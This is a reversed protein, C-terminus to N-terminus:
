ATRTLRAVVNISESLVVPDVGGEPLAIAIELTQDGGPDYGPYVGPSPHLSLFGGDPFELFVDGYANAGPPSGYKWGRKLLGVIPGAGVTGHEFRTLRGTAREEESLTYVPRALQDFPQLIEYDALVTAWDEVESGLTLPHAIRVAADEPLEFPEDEADALTRDEALRFSQVGEATAAQWVLRSSLHWVLPHEVLYTRFEAATWTRGAVMAAELRKVQDASTAKLDKRLLAFREYSAQAIEPDDKASPKPAAARRKGDEDLVYPKLSEDFRITFRRPGYELVMADEADLGFDPVLRDALQDLSLELREAIVEIQETATKKLAKFKAKQSFRHVARLSAETGIWGLIELGRVAKRSQSQGPWEQVLATLRRVTDDDAFRRLQDMAWADKSPAGEALWLEFLGWSFATLSEPECEAALLDAGPYLREADDLALATMFTRVAAEPLAAEGVLIQPLLTPDAWAGPKPVRAVRPDLPDADLLGAVAAAAEPGYAAAREEVDSRNKSALHRLADAAAHRRKADKGVADPILLSAADAAHRDLWARGLARDGKSRSLWDAAMRAADLNVFPMMVPRFSPKKRIVELVGPAVEPGFRALLSRATGVRGTPITGIWKAVVPRAVDEDARVLYEPFLYHDPDPGDPMLRDWVGPRTWYHDGDTPVVWEEQEGPAWRLEDTKPPELGVVPKQKAAKAFPLWPPTTFVAPVEAAEPHRRAAALLADLHEREAADLADVRDLLGNARVFGALRAQEAAAASAAAAAVARLGRTPFRQAAERAAAFASPVTLRAVLYSLAEDSPLRGIADFVARRLDANPDHELTNVLVPLADVGLADVVRAVDKLEGRGGPLRIAGSKALLAPNSVVAWINEGDTTNWQTAAALECADAAWEEQEPMLIAGIFRKAETTRRSAIADRAVVYEAEPLGALLSRVRAARGIFDNFRLASSVTIDSIRSFPDRGSWGENWYVALGLMEMVAEAAFAPGHATVWADLGIRVLEASAESRVRTLLVLAVAAGTPDAKGAIGDRIVPEYAPDALAKIPAEISERSDRFLAALRQPAEPDIDVPRPNGRSRWALTYARWADPFDVRDEAIPSSDTLNM